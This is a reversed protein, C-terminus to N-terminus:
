QSCVLNQSKELLWFSGLKPVGIEGKRTTLQRAWKELGVPLGSGVGLQVSLNFDWTGGGVRHAM